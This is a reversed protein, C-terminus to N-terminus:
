QEEKRETLVMRMAVKDAASAYRSKLRRELAETSFKRMFAVREDDTQPSPAQAARKKAERRAAAQGRELALAQEYSIKRETM